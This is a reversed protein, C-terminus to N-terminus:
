FAFNVGFTYLGGIKDCFVAERFNSNFLNQANVFFECTPVPKYGVKMNLTFRSHLKSAKNAHRTYSEKNKDMEQIEDQTYGWSLMDDENAYQRWDYESAMMRLTSSYATNYTRHHMYNGYASITLKNVPKYIFGIMGYVSPTAEHKHKNSLAVGAEKSEGVEYYVTGDSKTVQHVSYALGYYLSLPMGTYTYGNYTVTGQGNEDLETNQLKELFEEQQAGDWSNWGSQAIFDDMYAKGIAAGLYSAGNDIYGNLLETLAVSTNSRGGDLQTYLSANMNYEYYLLNDLYKLFFKILCIFKIIEIKKRIIKKM